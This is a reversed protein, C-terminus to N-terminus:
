SRVRGEPLTYLRRQAHIAWDTRHDGHRGEHRGVGVDHIGYMQEVDGYPDQEREVVVSKDVHVQVDVAGQGKAPTETGTGAVFTCMSDYPFDLAHEVRIDTSFENDLQKALIQTRIADNIDRSTHLHHTQMVITQSKESNECNVEAYHLPHIQLDTLPSPMRCAYPLDVYRSPSDPYTPVPDM